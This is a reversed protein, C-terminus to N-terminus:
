LSEDHRGKEGGKLESGKVKGMPDQHSGESPASGRCAVDGIFQIGLVIALSGGGSQDNAFCSGDGGEAVTVGVGWADVGGFLDRSPFFDNLGNMGRPAADEELEPVNTADGMGAKLGVSNEWDGGGGDSGFSLDKGSFLHDIVDSWPGEFDGLEGSDNGLVDVSRFEGLLGPEVSHFNMVCVAIQEVLEEAAAGVVAGVGIAAGYGVTAAEGEFNSFSDDFNPSSVPNPDPKGGGTDEIVHVVLVRHFSEAVEQLFEALEPEKVSVDGPDSRLIDPV